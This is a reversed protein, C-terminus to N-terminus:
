GIIAHNRPDLRTRLGFPVEVRFRVENRASKRFLPGVSYGAPETGWGYGKVCGWTGSRSNTVHHGPVARLLLHLVEREEQGARGASGVRREPLFM